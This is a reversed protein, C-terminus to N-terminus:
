RKVVERVTERFSVRPGEPADVDGVLEWEGSRPVETGFMEARVEEVVEARPRGKLPRETLRLVSRVLHAGRGEALLAAVIVIVSLAIAPIMAGQMDDFSFLPGGLSLAVLPHSVSIGSVLM